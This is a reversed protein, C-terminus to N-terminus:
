ELKMLREDLTQLITFLNSLNQNLVNENQTIATDYDEKSQDDTKARPMYVPFLSQMDM